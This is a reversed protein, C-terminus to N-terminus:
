SFINNNHAPHEEEAEGGAESPAAEKAEKYVYAMKNQIREARMAEYSLKNIL